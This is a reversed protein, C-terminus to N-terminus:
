SEIDSDDESGESGRLSEEGQVYSFSDKFGVRAGELEWIRAEFVLLRRVVFFAM